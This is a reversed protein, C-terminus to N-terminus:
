KEMTKIPMHTVEVPCMAHTCAIKIEIEEKKGYIELTQQYTM